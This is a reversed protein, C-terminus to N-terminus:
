YYRLKIILFACFVGGLTLRPQFNFAPSQKETDPNTDNGISWLSGITPKPGHRRGAGKGNILVRETRPLLGRSRLCRGYLGKWAFRQYALAFGRERVHGPFKEEPVDFSDGYPIGLSKHYRWTKLEVSLVDRGTLRYGLNLQVFHPKEDPLLNGVM